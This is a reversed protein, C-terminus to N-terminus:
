IKLLRSKGARHEALAGLAMKELLNQSKHFKEDWLKESEIENIIIQAIDDQVSDPLKYVKNLAKELLKTM